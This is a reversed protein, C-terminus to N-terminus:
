HRHYVWIGEEDYFGHLPDDDPHDDIDDCNDYNDFQTCSVVSSDSNKRNQHNKEGKKVRTTKENLRKKQTTSFQPDGYEAFFEHHNVRYQDSSVELYDERDHMARVQNSVSLIPTNQLLSHCSGQIAVFPLIHFMNDVVFSIILDLLCLPLPLGHDPDPHKCAVLLRMRLVQNREDQHKSFAYTRLAVMSEDSVYPLEGETFNPM